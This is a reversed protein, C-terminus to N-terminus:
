ISLDSKTFGLSCMFEFFPHPSVQGTVTNCFASNWDKRKFFALFPLATRIGHTM